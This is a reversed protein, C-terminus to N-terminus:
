SFYTLLTSWTGPAQSRSHSPPHIVTHPSWGGRRGCPALSSPVAVAETTMRRAVEIPVVAAETPGDLLDQGSPCTPDKREPSDREDHTAVLVTNLAYVLWWVPCLSWQLTHYGTVLFIIVAVVLELYKSTWLLLFM